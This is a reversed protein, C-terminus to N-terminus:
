ATLAARAPVTPRLLQRQAARERVLLGRAVLRDAAAHAAAYSVGTARAVDRVAVAGELARTMLDAEVSPGLLARIRLEPVRLLLWSVPRVATPKLAADDHWLGWARFVPLARQRVRERLTRMTDMVTFLPEPPSLPRCHGLAADFEPASGTGDTALSLLAGLVASSRPENERLAAALASLRRGNVFGHHAALWSAACVFLREDASAVRATECVLVELDVPTDSAQVGFLLGVRTWGAAVTDLDRDRTSPNAAARDRSAAGQSPRSRKRNTRKRAASSM